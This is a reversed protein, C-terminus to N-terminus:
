SLQISEYARLCYQVCDRVNERSFDFKIGAAEYIEPIPRTYGLQLASLYDELGKEPNQHYNRWVGLAGLQAIAYEIYYFPMEFVHGQKLWLRSLTEEYGSWDVVDGHFRKYLEMFKGHRDEESVEPNVYIWQQFADITAIWPFVDICRDLQQKMARKMTSEEPYLVNYEDLCLLEMAMSALEAVESPTSKLTNLHIENTVFSHVAHGSEHFMTTVDTQTGAANMFIFPIGTEALPYNYGGPAKGVRSELDLYGKDDMIGLMQGLAPHLNGLVRKAKEKLDQGDKFPNLPEEGYIDVSLDWPRLTDVGMIEKRKELLKMYIPRVENEVADHFKEVDQLKYDFRGLADFQYDTFNDYGANQAIKHRIEVLQVFLKSTTPAIQARAEQMKHWVDKRFARDRSELLKGAQQLTLTQENHEISLEGQKGQYQQSVERAKTFLDVNEKRFIEIDRKTQRKYTLYPDDALQDFFPSEVVKRNLKDEYTLAHPLIEKVFFIFAERLNVDQTDKTQKIYRWARDEQIVSGLEDRDKLFHELATLSGLERTLLQDYYPQIGAWDTIEFDTPLFRRAAKPDKLTLYKEM